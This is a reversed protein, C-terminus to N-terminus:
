RLGFPGLTRAIRRRLHTLRTNCDKQFIYTCHTEGLPAMKGAPSSRAHMIHKNHILIVKKTGNPGWISKFDRPYRNLSFDGVKWYRNMSCLNAMEPQLLSVELYFVSYLVYTLYRCYM